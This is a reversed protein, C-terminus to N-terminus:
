TFNLKRSILWHMLFYGGIALLIGMFGPTAFLYNADQATTAKLALTSFVISKVMGIGYYAGVAALIKHKKAILSGITVSLMLLIIESLAGFLGSFGLIAFLDINKVFSDWLQTCVESWAIWVDAWLITQISNIALLFMAFIIAAALAATLIVILTGIICNIISSLLIQHNTVPLTFTLYGEDTFCRKYFRYIMFFLSAACCVAIAVIGCSLLVMCLVMTLDSMAADENEVVIAFGSEAVSVNEAQQTETKLMYHMVGGVTLGSILIIVCLLVIISRTARWEHKLLKAFM